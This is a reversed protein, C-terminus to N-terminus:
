FLKVGGYRLLSVVKSITSPQGMNFKSYINQPTSQKPGRADVHLFRVRFASDTGYFKCQKVSLDLDDVSKELSQCLQIREWPQADAMVLRANSPECCQGLTENNLM